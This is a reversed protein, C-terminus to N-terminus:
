RNRSPVGSELALDNYKDKKLCKPMKLNENQIRTSKRKTTPSFIVDNLVKFCILLFHVEVVDTSGGHFGVLM